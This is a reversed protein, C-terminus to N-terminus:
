KLIPPQQSLMTLFDYMDIIGNGNFDFAGVQSGASVSEGYYQLLLLFDMIYTSWM